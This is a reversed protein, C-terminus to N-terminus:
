KLMQYVGNLFNAKRNINMATVGDAIYNKMKTEDKALATDKLEKEAPELLLKAYYEKLLQPHNSLEKAVDLLIQDTKGKYKKKLDNIKKDVLNKMKGLNGRGEDAVLYSALEQYTAAKKVFDKNDEILKAFGAYEKMSNEVIEYRQPQNAKDISDLKAKLGKAKKTYVDKIEDLNLKGAGKRLDNEKLPIVSFATRQLKDGLDDVLGGINGALGKYVDKSKRYQFLQAGNFRDETTGTELAILSNPNAKYEEVIFDSYTEINSEFAEPDHESNHLIEVLGSGKELRDMAKIFDKKNAM